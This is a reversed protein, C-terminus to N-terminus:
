HLETEGKEAREAQALLNVALGRATAPTFRFMEVPKGFDMVVAGDQIGLGIEVTGTTDKATPKRRKAM